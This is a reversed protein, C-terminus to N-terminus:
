AMPLPSHHIKSRKDRVSMVFARTFAFFIFGMSEKFVYWIGMPASCSNLSFSHDMNAELLLEFCLTSNIRTLIEPSWVFLIVLTGDAGLLFHTPAKKKKQRSHKELQM